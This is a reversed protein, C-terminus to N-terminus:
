IGLGTITISTATSTNQIDNRWINPGVPKLIEIVKPQNKLKGLNNVGEKLQEEYDKAELLKIVEKYSEDIDNELLPM